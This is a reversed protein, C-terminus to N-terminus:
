ETRAAATNVRGALATGISGSSKRASLPDRGCFHTDGAVGATGEVTLCQAQLPLSSSTYWGDSTVAFLFMGKQTLGSACAHFFSVLWRPGLVGLHRSPHVPAEMFYSDV